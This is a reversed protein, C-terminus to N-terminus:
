PSWWQTRRAAVELIRALDEDLLLREARLKRAAEVVRALYVERTPYRELVSPRPDNRLGREEPTRAFAVFMGESAALQGDVGHNPSRLNWGAYTGLPVAIDPLRVGGVENGDTDVAPVRVPFASGVKPPILDAIGETFFRPGFDLRRPEYAAPPLDVGPIRPFQERFKEVTVLTGEALRPYKSPPPEVGRTVWEDLAIYLARLVPGRDDLPNLPLRCTGANTSGGGLHHAGAIWYVRVEPPLELDREAAPDTHLLSAARTWYESSTQTFMMKPVAGTARTRALTDGREGTVPDVTPAPSMPFFESAAYFGEHPAGWETTMRFRHNFMGKGAGAVHVLMGDFVIRGTEDANLGEYVFHNLLRGSQSIDLAYAREVAGALPNEGAPGAAPAHRLFSITDRIATLGLGTVRPAAATYVLDYLWGPRFGDNLWLHTPEPLPEGNEGRGLAWQDHPVEGVPAGRRECMTLRAFRHDPVAPPYAAFVGWPSWSFPRSHVPETTCFEVMAPGTIPRGHERAVPADMLLRSTGDGRLDGNRGCPFVSAGHRMPVGHGTHAISIPQDTREGDNLTRIALLNGRNNVDYLLRRSGRAPDAPKLLWFDTWYEVRGRSNRPARQLDTIRANAPLHPDAEPHRRGEIVEYPGAVGFSVGDAFPTRRQFRLM